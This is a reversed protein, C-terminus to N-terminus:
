AAVEAKDAWRQRAAEGTTGVAQGIASWPVGHSRADTVSASLNQQQRELEVAVKALRDFAARQESGLRAVSRPTPLLPM